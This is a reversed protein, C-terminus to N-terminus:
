NKANIVMGHMASVDTEKSNDPFYCINIVVNICSTVYLCIVEKAKRLIATPIYDNSAKSSDLAQRKSMINFSHVNGIELQKYVEFRSKIATRSPHNKYKDISMGIRDDVSLDARNSKFSPNLGLSDTINVFHFNLCESTAKDDSMVKGNYLFTFKEGM